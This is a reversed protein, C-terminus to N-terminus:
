IMYIMHIRDFFANPTPSKVPLPPPLIISVTVSPFSIRFDHAHM